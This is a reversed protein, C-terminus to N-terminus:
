SAFVYNYDDEDLYVNITSETFSYDLRKVQINHFSSITRAGNVLDPISAQFFRSKPILGDTFLVIDAYRVFSGGISLEDYNAANVNARNILLAKRMTNQMTVKRQLQIDQSWYSVIGTATGNSNVSIFRIIDFEHFKWDKNNGSDVNITNLLSEVESVIAVGSKREVPADPVQSEGINQSSQEAQPQKKSCFKSKILCATDVLISIGLGLILIGCFQSFITDTGLYTVGLFSSIIIFIIGHIIPKM